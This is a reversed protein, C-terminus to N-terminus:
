CAQCPLHCHLHATASAVFSLQLWGRSSLASLIQGAHIGAWILSGPKKRLRLPLKQVSTMLQGENTGSRRDAIAQKIITQHQIVSTQEAHQKLAHMAPSTICANLVEHAKGLMDSQSDELGTSGQFVYCMLNRSPWSCLCNGYVSLHRVCVSMCVSLCLCVSLCASPSVSLCLCV